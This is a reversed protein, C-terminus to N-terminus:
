LNPQSPFFIEKLREGCYDIIYLYEKIRWHRWNKAHNNTWQHKILERDYDGNEGRIWIEDHIAQIQDSMEQKRNVCGIKIIQRKTTLLLDRLEPDAGALAVIQEQHQQAFEVLHHVHHNLAGKEWLGDLQAFEEKTPYYHELHQEEDYM